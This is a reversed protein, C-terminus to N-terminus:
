TCKRRGVKDGALTNGFKEGRPLLIGEKRSGTVMNRLLLRRFICKFVDMQVGDPKM